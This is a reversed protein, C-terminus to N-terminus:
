SFSPQGSEQGQGFLSVELAHLAEMGLGLAGAGAAGAAVLRLAERRSFRRKQWSAALTEQEEIAAAERRVSASLRQELATPAEGQPGYHRLLLTELSDNHM